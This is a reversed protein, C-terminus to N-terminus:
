SFNTRNIGNIKVVLSSYSFKDIQQFEEKAYPVEGKVTCFFIFSGNIKNKIKFHLLDLGSGNPLFYDSIIVDYPRENQLSKIAAKCSPVIDITGKFESRLKAGFYERLERDSEVFLIRM